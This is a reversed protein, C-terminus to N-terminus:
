RTVVSRLTTMTGTVGSMGTTWTPWDTPMTRGDCAAVGPRTVLMPGGDAAMALAPLLPPAPLLLPAPAPPLVPVPAACPALETRNTVGARGAAVPVPSPTGTCTDSAM